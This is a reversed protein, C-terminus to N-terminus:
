VAFRRRYERPAMGTYHQFAREFGSVSRYGSSLAIALITQPSSALLHQARRIRSLRIEEAPPHGLSEIFRKDLTRRSVSTHELVDDVTIPRACNERIFRLALAVEGDAVALFDTSRRQVLEGPPLHLHEVAEAEGDVIRTLLRAAEYGTREAQQCISSLPPQGTECLLQFNNVGVVAVEYPVKIELERCVALVECGLHDHAAFVGVPRQLKQLQAAIARHERAEDPDTLEDAVEVRQCPFSRRGVEDVFGQGRAADHLLDRRGVFAFHKLGLGILHEAALRGIAQNDSFVTSIESTDLRACVNVAPIRKRRLARYQWPFYVAAILGDGRWESLAEWPISPNAQRTDIEWGGHQQVYGIVGRMIGQCNDDLTPIFLGMRRGKTM